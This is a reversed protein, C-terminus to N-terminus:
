KLSFRIPIIFYAKVAKGDQMAPIWNPLMKVVRIAEEELRKDVGRLMIQVDSITGDTNVAFRVLVTGEIRKKKAKEPYIINKSIFHVLEAEGGIFEPYTEYEFYPMEEGDTYFCKGLLLEGNKYEDMRKINGNEWYLVFKGDIKGNKYDIEQSIQGNEHWYKIKGNLVGNEYEKYSRVQGNEFWSKESVITGQNDYLNEYRKKGSKYFGTALGIYESKSYAFQHVYLAGEFEAQLEGTIFYEVIKGTPKGNEDFNVIRYFAAKSKTCPENNKDYYFKEQKQSYAVISCMLLVIGLIRKMKM